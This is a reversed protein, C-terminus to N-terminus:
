AAQKRLNGHFESRVIQRRQKGLEAQGVVIGGDILEDGLVM